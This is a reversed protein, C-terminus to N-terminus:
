LTQQTQSNCRFSSDPLTSSLIKFFTTIVELANRHRKSGQIRARCVAHMQHTIATRSPEQNVYYCYGETANLLMCEKCGEFRHGRRTAGAGEFRWCVGLQVPQCAQSPSAIPPPLLQSTITEEALTHLVV